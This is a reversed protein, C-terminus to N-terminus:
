KREFSQEGEMDKAICKAASSILRRWKSVGSSFLCRPTFCTEMSKAPTCVAVLSIMPTPIPDTPNKLKIVTSMIPGAPTPAVQNKKHRRPLRFLEDVM